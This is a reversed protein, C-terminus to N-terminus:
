HFHGNENRIIDRMQVLVLAGFDDFYSVGGMDVTLMSPKRDKLISEFEHIMAGASAADMSGRINLTMQGDQVQSIDYQIQPADKM